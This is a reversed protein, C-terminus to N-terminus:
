RSPKQKKFFYNIVLIIIVFVVLSFVLYISGDQQAQRPKANIALAEAEEALNLSNEYDSKKYAVDADELKIKAADVDKNDKADNAIATRAKEIATAALEQQNEIPPPESPTPQPEPELKKICQGDECIEGYACSFTSNKGEDGKCYFELLDSEGLCKDTENSSLIEAEGKIGWTVTGIKNPNEGFDSDDCFKTPQLKEICAGDECVFNAPCNIGKEKAFNGECYFESVIDQDLCHDTLIRDGEKVTGKVKSDAGNDSDECVTNPLRCAGNSCIKGGVCPISEPKIPKPCTRENVVSGGSCSDDYSVAEGSILDINNEIKTSTISKTVVTTPNNADKGDPDDCSSAANITVEFKVTKNTPNTCTCEERCFPLLSANIRNVEITIEVDTKTENEKVKFTITDDMNMNVSLYTDDSTPYSIMVTSTGEEVDCAANDYFGQVSIDGIIIPKDEIKFVFPDEFSSVLPGYKYLDAFALSIFFSFFLLSLLFRM